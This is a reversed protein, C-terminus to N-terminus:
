HCMSSALESTQHEVRFSQVPSTVIRKGNSYITQSEGNSKPAVTPNEHAGIEDSGYM